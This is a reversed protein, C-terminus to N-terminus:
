PTDDVEPEDLTISYKPTFNELLSSKKLPHMSLAPIHM